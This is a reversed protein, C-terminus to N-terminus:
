WRILFGSFTDGHQERFFTFFDAADAFGDLRAFNEIEEPLMDDWFRTGILSTGAIQVNEKGPRCSITIPEVSLCVAVLLKKCAATRMGTYLMLPDGVRPPQRKGRARITQRKELRKVADAFRSQFNLAPM